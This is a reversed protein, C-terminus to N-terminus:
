PKTISKLLEAIPIVPRTSYSVATVMVLSADKPVLAKDSFLAVNTGGRSLKSDYLLGEAGAAKLREALYQTGLYGFRDDRHVPRSIETSAWSLAMSAKVVPNTTRLDLVNLDATTFFTAITVKAEPWPRLEAPATDREMAAYFCRVGAPNVRGDPTLSAPPMGMEKLPLPETRTVMEVPLIRARFLETGRPITFRCKLCDNFLNQFYGADAPVYRNHERLSREYTFWDTAAKLLDDILPSASPGSM